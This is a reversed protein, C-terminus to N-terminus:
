TLDFTSGICGTRRQQSSARELIWALILPDFKWM